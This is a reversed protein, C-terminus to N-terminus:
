SCSGYSALVSPTKTLNIIVLSSALVNIINDDILDRWTAYQLQTTINLSKLREVFNM